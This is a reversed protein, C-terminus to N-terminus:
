IVAAVPSTFEEGDVEGVVWKLAYAAGLLYALYGPDGGEYVEIKEMLNEYQQEIEPVTVRVQTARFEEHGWEPDGDTYIPM